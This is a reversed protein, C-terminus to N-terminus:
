PPSWATYRKWDKIGRANLFSGKPVYMAGAKGTVTGHAIFKIECPPLKADALGPMDDVHHLWGHWERTVASASVNELNAYEVWRHRGSQYAMNEFYKNGLSDTGVLTGKRSKVAWLSGDLMQSLLSVSRTGAVAKAAAQRAPPAGALSAAHRLM